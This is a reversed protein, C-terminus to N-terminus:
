KESVVRHFAIDGRNNRKAWYMAKDAFEILDRANAADSPYLAAGMTVTVKIPDGSPARLTCTKLASLLRAAMLWAEQETIEPLLLIFEDGGYRSALDIRRINSRITHALFELVKDGLPHGYTDNFKKFNDVDMMILAVSYSYRDARDMEEKLRQQFYRYVYLKTLGDTIAQQEIDEFLKANAIAMGIQGALTKLVSQQEGDIEQQSLLNDVSMCGVVQGRIVIPVYVVRPGAADVQVDSRGALIVDVLPNVGSKIPYSESEINLCRGPIQLGVIGALVDRGPHILYFRIRDFGLHVVLSRCVAELMEKLRPTEMVATAVEAGAQFYEEKKRHTQEHFVEQLKTSLINSVDELLPYERIASRRQARLPPLKELVRGRPIPRKRTLRLAGILTGKSTLPLYVLWPTGKSVIVPRLEQILMHLQSSANVLIEEEGEMLTDDQFVYQMTLAQRSDDWWFLAANELRLRRSLYGLGLELSEELGVARSLEGLFERLLEEYIILARLAIM